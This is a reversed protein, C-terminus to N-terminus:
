YRPSLPSCGLRLDPGMGEKPADIDFGVHNGRTDLFGFGPTVGDRM